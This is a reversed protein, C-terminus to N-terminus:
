DVFLGERRREILKEISSKDVRKNVLMCVYMNCVFFGAKKIGKCTSHESFREMTKM